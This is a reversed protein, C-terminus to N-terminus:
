VLQQESECAVDDPKQDGRGPDLHVLPLSGTCGLAAALMGFTTGLLEADNTVFCMALLACKQTIRVRVTVLVRVQATVLHGAVM